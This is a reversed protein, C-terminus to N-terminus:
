VCYSGKVRFLETSSIRLCRRDKPSSQHLPRHIHVKVHGTMDDPGELVHTFMERHWKVPVIEPPCLLIPGCLLVVSPPTIQRINTAFVPSVGCAVTRLVPGHQVRRVHYLCRRMVPFTPKTDVRPRRRTRSCAGMTVNWVVLVGPLCRVLGGGQGTGGLRLEALHKYRRYTRKGGQWQQRLFCGLFPLGVGDDISCSLGM